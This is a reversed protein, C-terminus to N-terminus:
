FIPQYEIHINDTELIAQFDKTLRKRIELYIQDIMEKTPINSIRIDFANGSYHLSNTASHKSDCVSTIVFEIEHLQYVENAILISLILEPKIGNLKVSEKLMM